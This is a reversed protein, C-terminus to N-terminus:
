EIEVTRGDSVFTVTGEEYTSVITSSAARFTDLVSQKPHGYRNDKGASIVAFEPSAFAVFPESSSTDSGHHGAKLVDIDLGEEDIAALYLEVAKPSDGTLLFSTEGYALKLVISATNTDMGDAERDPFLVFIKAGGGIDITQGRRAEIIEVGREVATERLADDLINDSEVGPELMAGVKFRELIGVLGTIHDADPHTAVVIDITRDYFSMSKGLERLVKDDSGGDIVVQRGSPSEIFIADGQGVDFFSVKLKGRTNEADVAYWVLVNLVALVIIM